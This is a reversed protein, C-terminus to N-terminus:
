SPREGLYSTVYSIEMQTNTIQPETYIDSFFYECADDINYHLHFNFPM